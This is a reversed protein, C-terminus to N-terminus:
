GRSAHMVEQCDPCTRSRGRPHTLHWFIPWGAAPLGCATFSDGPRKAHWPGWPEAPKVAASSRHSATVVWGATPTAGRRVDTRLGDIM